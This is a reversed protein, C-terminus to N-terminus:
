TPLPCPCDPLFILAIIEERNIGNSMVNFLKESAAPNCLAISYHSFRSSLWGAHLRLIIKLMHNILM